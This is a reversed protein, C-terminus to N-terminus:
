QFPDAKLDKGDGAYPDKVDPTARARVRVPGRSRSDTTV